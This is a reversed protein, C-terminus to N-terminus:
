DFTIKKIKNNGRDAVYLNGLADIAIDRPNNFQGLGVNSDGSSNNGAVTTVILSPTIKKIQNGFVDAVYLNGSSDFVIGSPLSLQSNIFTSISGNQNVKKIKNNGTDSIYVEGTPNIAISNPLVFQGLGAVDDGETSGAITTIVGNSTIKKIKHNGKDAIFLNGIADVQINSPQNFQGLGLNSDGLTSGAITTILGSPTIKKIKHNGTDAVYINGAPDIEIGIPNRLQGIGINNDGATSGAFTTIIGLPTIKKIKHNDTDAIFVDGNTNVAIGSAFNIQGLGSNSDGEVGNGAITTVTTTVVFDFVTSEANDNGVTVKIKGTGAAPPVTINLQTATASNVACSKGNITVTNSSANPSFGIGTLLVATGKAGDSPLISAISISSTPKPQENDDKSCSAISIICLIAFIIKLNKM